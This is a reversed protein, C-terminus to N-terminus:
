FTNGASWVRCNPRSAASASPQAQYLQSSSMQPHTTTQVIRHLRLKRCILLDAALVPLYLASSLQGLLVQSAFSSWQSHRTTASVAAELSTQLQTPPSHESEARKTNLEMVVCRIDKAQTSVAYVQEFSLVSRHSTVLSPRRQPHM